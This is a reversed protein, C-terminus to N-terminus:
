RPKLLYDDGSEEPIWGVIDVVTGDTLLVDESRVQWFLVHGPAGPGCVPGDIIEVVRGDALYKQPVLTSLESPERYVKVQFFSVYATSGLTLYSPSAGPCGAEHGSHEGRSLSKGMVDVYKVGKQSCGTSGDGRLTLIVREEEINLSVFELGEATYELDIPERGNDAIEYICEQHDVQVALYRGITRAIPSPTADFKGVKTVAGVEFVGIPTVMAYSTQLNIEGRSTVSISIPVFTPTYEVYVEGGCGTLLMFPFLLLFFFLPRNKCIFVNSHLKCSSAFVAPFYPRVIDAFFM